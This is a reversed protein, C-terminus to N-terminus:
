THLVPLVSDCALSGMKGVHRVNFPPKVRRHAGNVAAANLELEQILSQVVGVTISIPIDPGPPRMDADGILTSKKPVILARRGYTKGVASGTGPVMPHSTIVTSM